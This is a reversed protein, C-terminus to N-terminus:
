SDSVQREVVVLVGSDEASSWHKQLEWLRATRAAARNPGVHKGGTALGAIEGLSSQKWAKPIFSSGQSSLQYSIDYYWFTLM